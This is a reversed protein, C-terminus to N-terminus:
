KTIDSVKKLEKAVKSVEQLTKAGRTTDKLIKCNEESMIKCNEEIAQNISQEVAGSVEEEIDTIDSYIKLTTQRFSTDGLGYGIGYTIGTLLMCILLIGGAYTSFYDLIDFHNNDRFFFDIILTIILIAFAISAEISFLGNYKV